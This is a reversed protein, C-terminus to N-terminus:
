DQSLIQTETDSEEGGTLDVYQTTKPKNEPIVSKTKDDEKDLEEDLKRHAEVRKQLQEKVCEKFDNYEKANIGKLNRERPQEEQTVVIITPTPSLNYGEDEPESFLIQGIKGLGYMVLGMTMFNYGLELVVSSIDM